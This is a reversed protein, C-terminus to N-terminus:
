EVMELMEGVLKAHQLSDSIDDPQGLNSERMVAERLLWEHSIKVQQLLHKTQEDTLM